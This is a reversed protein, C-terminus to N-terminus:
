HDTEPDPRYEDPHKSQQQAKLSDIMESLLEIKRETSSAAHGYLFRDVLSEADFDAEPGVGALGWFAGVFLTGLLPISVAANLDKGELGQISPEWEGRHEYFTYLHILKAITGQQIAHFTSEFHPDRVLDAFLHMLFKREAYFAHYATTLEILAERLTKGPTPVPVTEDLLRLERELAAEVAADVRTRNSDSDGFLTKMTSKSIGATKPITDYTVAQRGGEIYLDVVANLVRERTTTMCEGWPRQLM